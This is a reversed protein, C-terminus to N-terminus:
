AKHLPLLVYFTTGEGPKSEAWIRGHHGEVIHRAIALGLGTSKEGATSRVSTRQFPEFVRDLEAEPIGQGHDRVAIIVGNGSRTLLVEITSGPHSSKIANGILNNLM